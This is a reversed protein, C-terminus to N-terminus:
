SAADHDQQEVNHLAQLQEKNNKKSPPPPPQLITNVVPSLLTKIVLHGLAFDAEYLSQIKVPDAIYANYIYSMKLDEKSM